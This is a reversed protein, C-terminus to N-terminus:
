EGGGKYGDCVHFEPENANWDGEPGDPRDCAHGSFDMITGVMNWYICHSCNRRSILRYNKPPVLEKAM